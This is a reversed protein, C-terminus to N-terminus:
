NMFAGGNCYLTHGTTFSSEDSALHVATDAMENATGPRGLPIAREIQERRQPDGLMSQTMPTEIFGPAFGNARIGHPALELALIRTLMIVGAKSVCYAGVGAVGRRGATSSVNVLTGHTGREIM